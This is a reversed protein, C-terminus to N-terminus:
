ERALRNIDGIVRAWEVRSLSYLFISEVLDDESTALATQADVVERNGAVGEEFRRLALSLEEQSLEVRKQSVAIQKFRSQIDEIVVRYEAGIQNELDRVVYEQARISSDARLRNARIRFGEFIPMSLAVGIGWQNQQNSDIIETSAYGYEGFVSVTPVREWDAKDRELRERSLEVEARRYEPRQMLIQRLSFDLHHPDPLGDANPDELVLIADLDLDLLRKLRMASLVVETEQQLRALMDGALQVEARTVDLRTATGAQFQSEALDLLVKDREINADSVELRRINRLHTYYAAAVETVIDQLFTQYSLESIEYGLKALRFDAIRQLDFVSMSAVIAADSRNQTTPTGGAGGGFGRGVNVFRNRQQSVELGVRPLLRSRQVYTDQLAQEVAERNLLVRLNESQVRAVVEPLTLHIVPADVDDSMAIVRDRDLPPLTVKTSAPDPPLEVIQAHAPVTAFVSVGLMFLLFRVSMASFMLVLRM